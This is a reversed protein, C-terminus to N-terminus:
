KRLKKKHLVAQDVMIHGAFIKTTYKRVDWIYPHLGTKFDYFFGAQLKILGQWKVSQRSNHKTSSSITLRKQFQLPYNRSEEEKVVMGFILCYIYM